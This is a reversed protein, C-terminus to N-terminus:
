TASRLDPVVPGDASLVACTNVVRPAIDLVRRYFPAYESSQLIPDDDYKSAVHSLAMTQAINQAMTHLHNCSRTGGLRSRLEANFGAAVQLGILRQVDALTSPCAGHPHASMDAEAQTIVLDSQRILVRLQMDHVRQYGGQGLCDDQLTASVQFHGPEAGRTVVTRVTREYLTDASPRSRPASRGRSAAV